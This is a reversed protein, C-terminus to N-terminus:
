PYRAGHTPLTLATGAQRISAVGDPLGNLGRLIGRCLRQHLQRGPLLGPLRRRARM